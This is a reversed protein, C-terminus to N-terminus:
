SSTRSSPSPACSTMDETVGDAFWSDPQEGGPAEFPLVAVSPVEPRDRVAEGQQLRLSPAM